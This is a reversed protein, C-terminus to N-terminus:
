LLLYLGLELKMQHIFFYHAHYVPDRYMYPYQAYVVIKSYFVMLTVPGIEMTFIINVSYTHDVFELSLRDQCM